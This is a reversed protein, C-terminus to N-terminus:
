SKGDDTGGAPGAPPLAMLWERIAQMEPNRYFCEVYIRTERYHRYNHGNLAMHEECGKETFCVMLTVWADVYGSKKIYETEEGDDPEPVEVAGDETDVWVYSDCWRPDMGYRRELGQIVFMPSATCRNDQTRLREGIAILEPTALLSSCLLANSKGAGALMIGRTDSTM